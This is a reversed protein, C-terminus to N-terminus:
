VGLAVSRDVKWVQAVTHFEGNEGFRDIGYMTGVRDAFARNYVQGVQVEDVTSSTVICPVQSAELDKMLEDYDVKFVPYMLEYGLPGLQEERWGVIHELHLDGFVLAEIQSAAYQKGIVDLARVIRSVYGESSGRHMPVGILTIGLHSAQQMVTEISVDQHAIIRSTADFTTLLVLGFSSSQQKNAQRALARITLFSDKGGSDFLVRIPKGATIAFLNHNNDDDDDNEAKYLIAPQQIRTKDKLNEHSYPCHRCGSGCCKGRKQHAVETMVKYGTAPDAYTLARKSCAIKHVEHYDEIDAVDPADGQLSTDAVFDLREYSGGSCLQDPVFSLARIAQVVSPQHEYACLAIIVTGLLLNPGPKAFYRDGDTAYLRDEMAPRLTSLYDRKEKADSINRPLDFGCCAILIVDADATQVDAWTMAVSKKTTKEVAPECGAYRMMGPIWHGGDFPPDLWELLFIRPIKTTTSARAREITEQLLRLNGLFAEKAAVGREPVGCATAVTLM